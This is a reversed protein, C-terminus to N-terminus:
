RREDYDDSWDPEVDGFDITPDPWSVVLDFKSFDVGAATKHFTAILGVEISDEVLGSSNGMPIEDKDISDYHAFQFWALFSCHVLAGIHVSIKEKDSEIVSLEDFGEFDLVRFSVADSEVIFSSSQEVYFEKDKLDELMRDFIADHIPDGGGRDLHEELRLAIGRDSKYFLGLCRNLNDCAILRDSTECYRTWDPDDSVVLAYGDVEAVRGELSMLAIADPFENKKKGNGFPPLADFYLDLIKRFDKLQAAPVVEASLREQFETWMHSFKSVAKKRISEEDFEEHLDGERWKKKQELNARWVDKSADIAEKVLHGQAERAVIESFLIKVNHERLQWLSTLPREAFRYGHQRLTSTDLSVFKVKYKEILELIEDESKISM